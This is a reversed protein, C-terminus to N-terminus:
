RRGRHDRTPDVLRSAPAAWASIRPMLAMAFLTALALSGGKLDDRESVAKLSLIATAGLFVWTLLPAVVAMRM